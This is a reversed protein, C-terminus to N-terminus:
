AEGVELLQELVKVLDPLRAAEDKGLREIRRAVLLDRQSRTEALIERGSPTIGMRSVRRDGPDPTRTVYGFEELAVVVRTMTPPQVAERLALEGLTPNDLTEISALASQQSPTLGASVQQRLHRHLRTVALRLRAALELDAGNTGSEEVTGVAGTGNM